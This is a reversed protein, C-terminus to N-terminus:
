KKGFLMSLPKPHLSKEVAQCTSWSELSRNYNSQVVRQQLGNAGAPFALDGPHEPIKFPVNTVQVYEQDTLVLGLHGNAAGGLLSPVSSANAKLENKLRQLTTFDPEGQIPTLKEHQFYESKYNTVM